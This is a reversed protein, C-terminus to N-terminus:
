EVALQATEPSYRWDAPLKGLRRYYNALRRIRAEILTLGRANHLDRRHTALHGQLHVARKMLNQLDEPIQPAVGNEQMIESMSKGTALKVSPVGHQDRLVLGIYAATRGERAHKLVLDVIEQKEIPQWDPAEERPPARSRSSGRRRAHVRAM